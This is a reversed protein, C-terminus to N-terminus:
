FRAAVIKKWVKQNVEVLARKGDYFKVAFVVQKGRGGLILGALLGVPGLALAGVTGWGAAGLVKVKNEESVEDLEDVNGMDYHVLKPFWAFGVEPDPFSFRGSRFAASAGNESSTKFDGALVKM